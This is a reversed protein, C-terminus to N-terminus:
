RRRAEFLLQPKKRTSSGESKSGPPDVAFWTTTLPRMLLQGTPKSTPGATHGDAKPSTEIHVWSRGSLKTGKLRKGGRVREHEEKVNM